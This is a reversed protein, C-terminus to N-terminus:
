RKLLKEVDERDQAARIQAWEGLTRRPIGLRDLVKLVTAASVKLEEAIEESTYCDEYMEVIEAQTKPDVRKGKQGM